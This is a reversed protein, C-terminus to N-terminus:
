AKLAGVMSKYNTTTTAVIKFVFGSIFILGIVAGGFLLIKTIPHKYVSQFADQYDTKKNENIM